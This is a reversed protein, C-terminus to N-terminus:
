HLQWLREQRSKTPVRLNSKFTIHGDEQRVISSSLELYEPDTAVSPVTSIGKKNQHTCRHGMSTKIVDVMRKICKNALWMIRKM